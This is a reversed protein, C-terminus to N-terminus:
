KRLQLMIIQRKLLIWSTDYNRSRNKYKSIRVNDGVQFKHDENNSEKGFDICTNNKVNVPKM